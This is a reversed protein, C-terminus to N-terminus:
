AADVDPDVLGMSGQVAEQVGAGLADDLEMKRMKMIRPIDLPAVGYLEMLYEFPFGVSSLKVLMDALQAESRIEPNLHNVRAISTEAALKEDGLALAILRNIERISPGAYTWFELVKKNLGIESAKLGEGNVNSMGTKSVLYTPPTRTQSAIHGVAIDITDTFIDLAAAKWSDIKANEGTLTVLRKERLDKMEVNRTGIVKGDSDLVPIKPPEAGLIVRADMSAYDAALFLYAWLLNISDQMPMVGQIESVPDGMLTPRNQVEVVPVVGLPNPLPWVEGSVERMQWGGDAAYGTKSQDAQSDRDNKERQRPREWKWLSDKTYLTAFERKEDVWTKLAARRIRPNEWEYEIEVNSPHEWTVVPTGDREAWVIVFSRGTTLTTVFGQSSQMDMENRLWVEHLTNAATEGSLFTMGTYDIRESEANVVPASWNDSFGAYQAANSKKWEETAYNLPQEGRFYQEFKEIPSDSFRHIQSQSSRFTLCHILHGLH